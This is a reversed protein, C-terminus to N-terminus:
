RYRNDNYSHSHLFGVALDWQAEPFSVDQVMGTLLGDVALPDEVLQTAM